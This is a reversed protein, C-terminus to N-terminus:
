GLEQSPSLTVLECGIAKPDNKGSITFRECRNGLHNVRLAPTAPEEPEHDGDRRVTPRNRELERPRRSAALEKGCQQVQSTAM